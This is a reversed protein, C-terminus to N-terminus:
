TQSFEFQFVSIRRALRRFFNVIVDIELASALGVQPGQREHGHMLPLLLLAGLEARPIEIVDIIQGEALAV